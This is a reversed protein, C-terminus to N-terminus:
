ATPLLEHTSTDEPPSQFCDWEIFGECLQIHGQKLIMDRHRDLEWDLQLGRDSESRSHGGGHNMTDVTTTGRM